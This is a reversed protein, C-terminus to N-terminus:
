PSWIGILFPQLGNWHARLDSPAPFVHQNHVYQHMLHISPALFSDRQCARRVPKAQQNTLKQRNLLDKTVDDLKRALTADITTPLGWRGVYADASLELFVRFLVSVANTYDELSLRRLESEIEHVRADTISLVCDRPILVNRPKAPKPARQPKTQTTATTGALSQGQGSKVTHAVVVDSPLTDAYDARQEKTYIDKTKIKNSVLDNVIHLLAKMVRKEDALLHITGGQVEFGLKSRVKPTEILRKFSTAPVKRREEPSLYGRDELFNLAQSHVELGGSRARFRAGEDSGWRVIGAGDNEGTHRLEIWHQAEDRNKVALCQIVEIPSEQYQKSLKRLESLLNPKLAGVLTDPNELGRLAALRRNGELVVYRKLDDEVPMVIPLDAPNVGYTLIDKALVVLKRQQHAAVARLADRQGINPQPLRPNAADILLASLMVPVVESM